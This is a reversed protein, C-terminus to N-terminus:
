PPRTEVGCGSQVQEPPSRDAQEPLTKDRAGSARKGKDEPKVSFNSNSGLEGSGSNGIQTVDFHKNM